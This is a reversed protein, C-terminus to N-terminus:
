EVNRYINKLSKETMRIFTKYKNINKNKLKFKFLLKTSGLSFSIIVYHIAYNNNKISLL